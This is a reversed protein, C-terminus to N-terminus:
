DVTIWWGVVADDEPTTIVELRYNDALHDNRPLFERYVCREGWKKDEFGKRLLNADHDGCVDIPFEDVESFYELWGNPGAKHKENRAWNKGHRWEDFIRDLLVEDSTWKPLGWSKAIEDRLQSLEEPTCDRLGVERNVYIQPNYESYHRLDERTPADKTEALWTTILNKLAETSLKM